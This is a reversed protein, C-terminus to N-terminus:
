RALRSARGNRMISQHGRGAPDMARTVALPDGIHEEAEADGANPARAQLLGAQARLEEDIRRREVVDGEPERRRGARTSRAV